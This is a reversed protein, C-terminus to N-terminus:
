FSVVHMAAVLWEVGPWLLLLLFGGWLVGTEV